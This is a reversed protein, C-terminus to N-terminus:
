RQHEQRYREVERPSVQWDRGIKKANLKRRLIQVRLTTPSLGLREAAEKLTVVVVAYLLQPLTPGSPRGGGRL